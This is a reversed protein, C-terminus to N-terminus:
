LKQEAVKQRILAEYAPGSLPCRVLDSFESMSLKLSRKIQNLTGPPVSSGRHVKPITIRFLRKGDLCYWYNMESGARREEPRVKENIARQLDRPKVNLLGV